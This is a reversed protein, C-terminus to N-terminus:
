SRERGGRPPAALRGSIVDFRHELLSIHADADMELGAAVERRIRILLLEAEAFDSSAYERAGAAELQWMRYELDALSQYTTPRREALGGTGEAPWDTVAGLGYCGSLALGVILIQAALCIRGM